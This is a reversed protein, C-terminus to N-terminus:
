IREVSRVQGRDGRERVLHLRREDRIVQAPCRQASVVRVIEQRKRVRFLCESVDCLAHDLHLLVETTPDEELVRRAVDREGGARDGLGLEEGLDRPAGVAADQEVDVVDVDARGVVAPVRLGVERRHRRLADRLDVEGAVAIVARVQDIRVVMRHAIRHPRQVGGGDRPEAADGSHDLAVIVDRREVLQDALEIM